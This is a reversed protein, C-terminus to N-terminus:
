LGVHATWTRAMFSTFSMVRIRYWIATVAPTSITANQDNPRNRIM